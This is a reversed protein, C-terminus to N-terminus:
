TLKNGRESVSHSYDKEMYHVEAAGPRPGLDRWGHRSYFRVARENGPAVSLRARKLGLGTFFLTVYQDLAPAKGKGRFEPILYYLNVYGITADEKWRGIELQGIIQSKYWAHVCSFPNESLKNKLWQLYRIGGKGDHEHFREASGFSCVFSDERYRLCLEAHLALDIPRFEVENILVEQVDKM